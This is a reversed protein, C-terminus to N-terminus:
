TKQAVANGLANCGIFSVYIIDRFFRPRLRVPEAYVASSGAPQKRLKFYHAFFDAVIEVHQKHADTGVIEVFAHRQAFKERLMRFVYHAFVVRFILRRTIGHAFLPLEYEALLRKFPAQIAKERLNFVVIGILPNDQKRRQMARIGKEAAIVNLRVFQISVADAHIEFFVNLRNPLRRIYPSNFQDIQIPFASQKRYVFLM